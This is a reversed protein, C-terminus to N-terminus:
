SGCSGPGAFPYVVGTFADVDASIDTFDTVQDVAEPVLDGRTLSPATATGQFVSLTASIDSFDPQGSGGFPGVVDGWKATKIVVADSLCSEVGLAICDATAGRLEYTAGPVISKGFLSILDIGSWDGVLPDCQVQAGDFSGEAPSGPISSPAGAWRIQGVTTPFLPADVIQMRIAFPDGAGPGPTIPSVPVSVYRSKTNNIDVIAPRFEAIGIIDGLGGPVNPDGLLFTEFLGQKFGISFPGLADSPIDLVLTGAYRVTGDDDSGIMDWTFSGYRYELSATDPRISLIGPAEDTRFASEVFGARCLTGDCTSGGGLAATCGDDDVCAVQAPALTGRTGSTYGAPDLQAQWTQLSIGDVGDPDWNSIRIELWIRQGGSPLAIKNGTITTGIPYPTASPAIPQVPVLSIIATPNEIKCTADCGDGATGNGDECEENPDLVSDGCAPVRHPCTEPGTFVFTYALGGFGRWWIVAERFTVPLSPDLRNPVVQARTKQRPTTSDIGNFLEVMPILDNYSPQFGGNDGFPSSTDAWKGTTIIFPDSLCSETGLAVCEPTATRVEYTARETGNTAVVESGFVNLLGVGSWDQVHPGCELRAAKFTGDAPSLTNSYEAPPGVWRIAGDFSPFDPLSVLKVRIALNSGAPPVFSIYRNKLGCVDGACGDNTSCPAGANPGSDCVDDGVSVAPSLPGGARASPWAPGLTVLLAAVVWVVSGTRKNKNEDLLGQPSSRVFRFLAQDM